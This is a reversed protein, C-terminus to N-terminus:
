NVWNISGLGQEQEDESSSSDCNKLDIGQTKEMLENERMRHDLLHDLKEKLKDQDDASSSQYLHSYRATLFEEYSTFTDYVLKYLNSMFEAHVKAPSKCNCSYICACEKGTVESIKCFFCM